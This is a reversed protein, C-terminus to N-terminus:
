PPRHSLQISFDHEAPLVVSSESYYGISWATWTHHWRLTRLTAWLAARTKKNAPGHQLSAWTFTWVPYWKMTSTHIHINHFPLGAAPAATSRKTRHPNPSVGLYTTHDLWVRSPWCSPHDWLAGSSGPHGQLILNITIILRYSRPSLVQYECHEYKYVISTYTIKIDMEVNVSTNITVTFAAHM